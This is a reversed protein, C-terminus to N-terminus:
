EFLEKLKFKYITNNPNSTRKFTGDLQNTLIEILENGFCDKQKDNCKWVSNVSYILIINDSEKKINIEIKPKKTTKFAHKISNSALENILLGLPVITKLNIKSINTNIEYNLNILQDNIATIETLLEELYPKLEINAFDQGKYLKQHILSMTLIRNIAESFQTQTEISQIQNKQLRLLSIIIQLNNKVRHHVEQVLAVNDINQKRITKNQQTLESNSDLIKKFSYNHFIVFQFILYSILSIVLILEFLLGIKISPSFDIIKSMNNELSYFLYYSSNAGMLISVITGATLGLGFFTILVTLIHWLYDSIHVLNANSNLSYTCIVTGVVAVIYYILKYKKTTLLYLLSFVSFGFSILYSFSDRYNVNYNAVMLVFISICLILMLRWVFLFRGKEYYTNYFSTNPTFVSM